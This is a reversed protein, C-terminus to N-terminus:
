PRRSVSAPGGKKNFASTVTILASVGAFHACMPLLGKTLLVTKRPQKLTINLASKGTQVLLKGNEDDM